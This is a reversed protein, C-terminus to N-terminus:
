PQPKAPPKVPPKAAAPLPPPRPTEDLAKQVLPDNRFGKTLQEALEDFVLPNKEKALRALLLDRAQDGGVAALAGIAAIRVDDDKDALAKGLLTLAKDGGVRGLAEVAGRRVGADKDKMAKELTALPKEGGAAKPASAKGAAGGTITVHDFVATCMSHPNHACCVIGIYVPDTMTLTVPNPKGGDASTGPMATWAVGDASTSGTFTNGSRQLRVWTPPALGAAVGWAVDQPPRNQMTTGEGPTAFVGAYTSSTAGIDQRIMVGAKAATGDGGSISAVHATITGDGSFPHYYVFYFMDGAGPWEHLKSFIDLGEAQLTFTGSAVDYGVSGPDDHVRGDSNVDAATWGPPLNEAWGARPMLSLAALGCVLWSRTSRRM